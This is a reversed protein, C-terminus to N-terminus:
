VQDKMATTLVKIQESLVAVLFTLFDEKSIRIVQKKQSYFSKVGRHYSAKLRLAVKVQNM